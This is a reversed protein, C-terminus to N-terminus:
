AAAPLTFYFVSGQGMESELGVEGGLQKVIRSVISLGLGHGEISGSHAAHVRSFERFLTAQDAEALGAGNDRVWFRVMGNGMSEGGLQLRPPRGGYKLGNSLYNAWVEEVWPAYGVATPWADPLIIEAEYEEIVHSLRERVSLIVDMM